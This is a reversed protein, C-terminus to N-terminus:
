IIPSRGYLNMGVLGCRGLEYLSVSDAEGIGSEALGPTHRDDEVLVVDAGHIM